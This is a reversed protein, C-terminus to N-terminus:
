DGPKAVPRTSFSEHFPVDGIMAEAEDYAKVLDAMAYDPDEQYSVSAATLHRWAKRMSDAKGGINFGSLIAISFAAIFSTVKTYFTGMEETFTGVILAAATGILALLIQTVRLSNGVWGWRRLNEQLEPPVQRNTM